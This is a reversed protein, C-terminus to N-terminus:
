SAAVDVTALIAEILPTQAEIEDPPLYVIFTAFGGDSTPKLALYLGLESGSSTNAATAKIIEVGDLTITETDSLTMGMSSVLPSFSFDFTEEPTRSSSGPQSNIQFAMGGPRSRMFNMIEQGQSNNFLFVGVDAIPDLWGEPYSVTVGNNTSTVTQTLPPIEAGAPAPTDAPIPTDVAQPVTTDGGCATIGMVLVVTLFLFAIQRM